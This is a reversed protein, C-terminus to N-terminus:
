STKSIAEDMQIKKRSNPIKEIQIIGQDGLRDGFNPLDKPCGNDNEIQNLNSVTAM